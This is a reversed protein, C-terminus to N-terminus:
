SLEADREGLQFSASPVRSLATSNIPARFGTRHLRCAAGAREMGPIRAHGAVAEAVQKM